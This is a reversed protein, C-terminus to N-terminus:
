YTVSVVARRTGAAGAGHNRFSVVAATVWPFLGDRVVRRSGVHWDPM